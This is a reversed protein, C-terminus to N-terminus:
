FKQCFHFVVLKERWDGVMDRTQYSAIPTHLRFLAYRYMAKMVRADYRTPPWWVSLMISDSNGTKKERGDSTNGRQGDHKSKNWVSVLKRCVVTFTSDGFVPASKNEVFYMEPTTFIVWVLVSRKYIHMFINSLSVRWWHNKVSIQYFHIWEM